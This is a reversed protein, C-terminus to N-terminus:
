AAPAVPPEGYVVKAGKFSRTEPAPLGNAKIMAMLEDKRAQMRDALAVLDVDTRRCQAFMGESPREEEKVHHEIEESLVSVKADYFADDPDGAMLEAILMKAGDHEVYGEDLLDDEIKGRFTPYFIEEEILSHVTLETCIKEVIKAKRDKTTAKEFQEFLDEVERHDDKLLKIADIKAM